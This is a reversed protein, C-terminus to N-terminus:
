QESGSEDRSPPSAFYRAIEDVAFTRLPELSGRQEILVAPVGESRGGRLEGIHTCQIGAARAAGLCREVDGASVVALLAGSAILGWPDLELAGCIAATEPYVHVAEPDVVVTTGTAVALEHLATALGGETPDHMGRLAAGSAQLAQAAPLVSIGPARLFDRARELLAGPLTRLVGAAERALLATGEVAIGGCLLLADGVRANRPDLLADPRAEGLLQGVLITRNLGVTIECHGGVLVIGLESAATHLEEFTEEILAATTAGEPFLATTLLWRPTAGMCALDNANVNVLHWGVDSSAFTVPDTKVVLARDGMNIAAADRGVGPGILVRPDPRTYRALMAALLESPLKGAPLIDRGDARVSM